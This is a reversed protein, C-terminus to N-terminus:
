SPDDFLRQWLLSRMRQKFHFWQTESPTSSSAVSAWGTPYGMLAEVFRPNLTRGSSPPSKQGDTMITPDPHGSAAAVLNLGGQRGSNGPGQNASNANPTPWNKGQNTLDADRRNGPAAGKSVNSAMPTAWNRVAADTLSTGPHTAGTTVANRGGSAKHDTATATPWHSPLSDKEKTRHAWRQQEACWRRLRTAWKKYNERSSTLGPPLIAPSTRWSFLPLRANGSSARSRPGSTAPTATEADSERSQSRSAPIARLSAIWLDVGLDATLPECTAGSLHKLYAAKNWARHLFPLATHTGSSLVFLEQTPCQSRLESISAELAPACRCYEPLYLWM